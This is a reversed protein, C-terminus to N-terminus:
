LAKSVQSEMGLVGGPLDSSNDNVQLCDYDPTAKSDTHQTLMYYVYEGIAELFSLDMTTFVYRVM